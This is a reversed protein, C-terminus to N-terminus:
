STSRAWRSISRPNLPTHDKIYQEFAERDTNGTYLLADPPVERMATMGSNGEVLYDTLALKYDRDPDLPADGVM